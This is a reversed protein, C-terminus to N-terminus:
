MHRLNCLALVAFAFGCVLLIAHDYLLFSM